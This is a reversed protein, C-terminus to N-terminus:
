LITALFSTLVLALYMFLWEKFTFKPVRIVEGLFFWALVAFATISFFWTPLGSEINHTASSASGALWFILALGGSLFPWTALGNKVEVWIDRGSAYGVYGLLAEDLKNVVACIRSRRQRLRKESSNRGAFRRNE